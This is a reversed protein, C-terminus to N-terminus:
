LVSGKVCLRVGFTTSGLVQSGTGFSLIRLGMLTAVLVMM